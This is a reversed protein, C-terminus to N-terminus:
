AMCLLRRLWSVPRQRVVPMSRNRCRTWGFHRSSALRLNPPLPSLMLLGRGDLGYLVSAAAAAGFTGVTGTSHWYKYHARGMVMGIRTSVEYGVVIARLLDAGNAGVDQASALAAAITPAGPHYMAERFSDDVEAAHAAARATARRSLALRARGRDLDEILVEELNQM